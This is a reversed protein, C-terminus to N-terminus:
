NKHKPNRNRKKQSHHRRNGSGSKKNRNKRNGNQSAQSKERMEKEIIRRTKESIQPQQQESKRKFFSFIRSFFGKSETSTKVKKVAHAVQEASYVPERKDEKRHNRNPRKQHSESKSKNHPRHKSITENNAQRRSQSRNDHPEKRTTQRDRRGDSQGRGRNDRRDNRANRDNYEGKVKVIRVFDLNEIIREDPHEVPITYQLYSELRELSEYDVESCISVAEGTKGARATRGIRHVYSEPDQPIDYNVVMAVDEIHLGRSAVDTAVLVRFKKQKFNELIKIRKKQTVVSSLGEAPISHYNLNEVLSAVFNRTNTFIIVPDADIQELMQILYPMKEKQGLHYMKQSIKKHDILEPNILVEEPDNMHEWVSYLASYNVTASFLATQKKKATKALIKKVDDIFGMDLMRDAEDLVVRSVQGLSVDKSGMFDLLRGPTAVIVDVGRKLQKKQSEYGTGGFIAAVQVNEGAALWKAEEAIQLVLERTPALVLVKPNHQENKDLQEDEPAASSDLQSNDLLQYLNDFVPILFALTKGSGTKACGIIDKQDLALPITAQQVPTPEEFQREKLKNEIKEHIKLDSFLM